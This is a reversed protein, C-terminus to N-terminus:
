VVEYRDIWANRPEVLEFEDRYFSYKSYRGPFAIQWLYPSGGELWTKPLAKIAGVSDIKPYYSGTVNKVIIVADGVEFEDM